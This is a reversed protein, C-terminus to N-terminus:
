TSIPVACGSPPDLLQIGVLSPTPPPCISRIWMLFKQYLKKPVAPVTENSTYDYFLKGFLTLKIPDLVLRFGVYHAM